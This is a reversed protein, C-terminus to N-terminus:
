GADLAACLLQRLGDLNARSVRATAANLDCRMCLHRQIRAPRLDCKKVVILARAYLVASIAFNHFAAAGLWQQRVPQGSTAHFKGLWSDDIHAAWPTTEM